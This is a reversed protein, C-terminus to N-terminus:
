IRGQTALTILDSAGSIVGFKYAGFLVVALVLATVAGFILRRVWPDGPPPGVVDAPVAWHPSLAKNSGRVRRIKDRMADLIPRLEAEGGAGYRGRYGLLLCLLYVELLDSAQTSDPLALTRQINTFFTEGAMHGGYLEAQLPLRPWDAFVPNRSNLVTEDLFATVAYSALQVSEAPFGQNRADQDAAGLAQKVHARFVDANPIQQRGFRLRVIATFVEQFALALNWLRTDLSQEASRHSTISTAM